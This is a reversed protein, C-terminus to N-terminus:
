VAPWGTSPGGRVDDSSTLLRGLYPKVGLVEFTNGTPHISPYIRLVGEGDRINVRSNVLASLDTFSRQQLRLQQYMRWPIGREANESGPLPGILNIRALEAPQPVPLDRLFLGHLLTFIATNAGIGAALTLVATLFFIPSKRLMRLSYRFDQWFTELSRFAWIERSKERLLTLNGFQRRATYHAEDPSMGATLNAEAKKELHFKMEEELERDFRDRRFYFLLRRCLQTLQNLM